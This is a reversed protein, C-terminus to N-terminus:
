LPPWQQEIGEREIEKVREESVGYREATAARSEAVSQGADQAEILSRFIARQQEVTSPEPQSM